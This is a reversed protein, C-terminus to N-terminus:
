KRAELYIILQNITKVIGVLNWRESHLKDPLGPLDPSPPLSALYDLALAHFTNMSELSLEGKGTYCIERYEKEAKEIRERNLM